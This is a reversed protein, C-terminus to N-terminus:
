KDNNRIRTQIGDLNEYVLRTAGEPKPWPALGHVNLLDNTIGQTEEYESTAESATFKSELTGVSNDDSDTLAVTSVTGTEDVAEEYLVKNYDQQGM